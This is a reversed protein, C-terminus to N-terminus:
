ELSQKFFEIVNNKDFLEGETLRAFELGNQFYLLTPVKQLKVKPHVRYIFDTKKWELRDDIPFKVLLVKDQNELLKSAEEINPKSVVCDSCWSNGDIDYGGYFYALFNIKNSILDGFKIEFEELAITRIYCTNM